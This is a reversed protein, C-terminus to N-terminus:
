WIGSVAMTRAGKASLTYVRRARRGPNWSIDGDTDRRCSRRHGCARAAARLERRGPVCPCPNGTRRCGRPGRRSRGAGPRRPVDPPIAPRRRSAARRWAAGRPASANDRGPRRRRARRCGRSDPSVAARRQARQAGHVAGHEELRLAVFGPVQALRQRWAGAGADLAGVTERPQARQQRRRLPAAAHEDIRRVLFALVERAHGRGDVSASRRKSPATSMSHNGTFSRESKSAHSACARGRRM